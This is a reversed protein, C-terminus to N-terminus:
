EFSSWNRGSGQAKDASDQRIRNAIAHCVVSELTVVVGIVVSFAYRGIM